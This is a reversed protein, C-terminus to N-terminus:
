RTRRPLPRRLPPSCCFFGSQPSGGQGAALDFQEAVRRIRARMSGGRRGSSVVLFRDFRCDADFLGSVDLPQRVGQLYKLGLSVRRRPWVVSTAFGIANVAYRAQAEDLSVDPGTKGTMQWAGYGVLGLQLGAESGLSVTHTVSYDLDLTQGPHIGTGEQVTHFEYMQFASVATAGSSTLRWTQGSAVVHTWYGSGVNTIPAPNSSGPRRWSDTCRGSPWASSTGASSSRNFTPTASAAAAASPGPRARASRTTPSPITASMSFRAGGLIEAQGVWLLTNMALLVSNNGTAQPEGDPGRQEDRGYFLLQNVYTFGSDPTVGSNTASMGLPYTGRNQADAPGAVLLACAM